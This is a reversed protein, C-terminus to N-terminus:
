MTKSAAAKADQFASAVKNEMEGDNLNEVVHTTGHRPVKLRMETLKTDVNTTGGDWPGITSAISVRVHDVWERAM